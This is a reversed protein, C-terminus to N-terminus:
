NQLTWTLTVDVDGGEAANTLSAPTLYPGWSAATGPYDSATKNCIPSDQGAYFDVSYEYTARPALTTGGLTVSPNHSLGYSLPGNAVVTTTGSVNAICLNMEDRLSDGDSGNTSATVQIASETVPINGTNTITVPIATTDFSSGLVAVTPLTISTCGVSASTCPGHYGGIGASYPTSVAVATTGITASGTGSGRTTFYGYASSAALALALTAIAGFAVAVRHWHWPMM